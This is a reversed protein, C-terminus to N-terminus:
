KTFSFVSCWLTSTILLLPKYTTFVPNTKVVTYPTNERSGQPLSGSVEANCVKEFGHGHESSM